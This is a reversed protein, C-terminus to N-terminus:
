CGSAAGVAVLFTHLRSYVNGAQTATLGGGVFAYAIQDASLDGPVGGNESAGVLMIEAPPLGSADTPTAVSAGNQYLTISPASTRSVILSGQANTSGTYTPFAGGNLEYGTAYAEIYAYDIGLSAYATPSTRSTLVCAGIAASNQAYNGGATIPDLGTSFYGTSGDGTYGNNAAFTETGNQTLTYSTSVLNLNATTTTNTAFVWLGDMLTWTGDTVMGCILNQYATTQPGSLGSTRALFTASTPCGSGGGSSVSVNYNSDPGPRGSAPIVILFLFILWVPIRWIM